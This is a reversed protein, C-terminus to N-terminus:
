CVTVDGYSYDVYFIFKPGFTQEVDKESCGVPLVVPLFAEDCRVQPVNRRSELGCTPPSRRDDASNGCSPSTTAAARTPRRLDGTFGGRYRRCRCPWRARNGGHRQDGRGRRLRGAPDEAVPNPASHEGLGRQDSVARPRLAPDTLAAAVRCGRAATAEEGVRRTAPPM